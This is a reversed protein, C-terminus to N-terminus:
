SLQDRRPAWKWQFVPQQECNVAQWHRRAQQWAVMMMSSGYVQGLPLSQQMGSQQVASQHVTGHCDGRPAMQQGGAWTNGVDGWRIPLELSETGLCLVLRAKTVADAQRAVGAAGSDRYHCETDLDISGHDDRPPQSECEWARLWVCRAPSSRTRWSRTSMRDAEDSHQARRRAGQARFSQRLECETHPEDLWVWAHSALGRIGAWKTVAAASSSTGTSSGGPTLTGTSVSV